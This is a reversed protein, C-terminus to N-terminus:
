APTWGYVSGCRPCQVDRAVSPQPILIKQDYPSGLDRQSRLGGAGVVDILGGKRCVSCEIEKFDGAPTTEQPAALVQQQVAEEGEEEGEGFARGAAKAMRELGDGLVDYKKADNDAKRTAIGYDLELRKMGLDRETRLKEIELQVSPNSPAPADAGPKRLMGMQDLRDLIGFTQEVPDPGGGQNQNQMLTATATMLQIPDYDKKSNGGSLAAGTQIAKLTTDAFKTVDSTSADPRAKAFGIIMPLMLAANDGKMNQAMALRSYVDLAVERQEEDMQSLAAVLEPSINPGKSTQPSSDGSEQPGLRDQLEKLTVRARTRKVDRVLDKDVDDELQSLPDQMIIGPKIRRDVIEGLTARRASEEDSM